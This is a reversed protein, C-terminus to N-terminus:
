LFGYRRPIWGLDLERGSIKCFCFLYERFKCPHTLWSSIHNLQHGLISIEFFHIFKGPNALFAEFFRIKGLLLSPRLGSLFIVRTVKTRYKDKGSFDGDTNFKLTHFIELELKEFTWVATSRWVPCNRGIRGGYVPGSDPGDEVALRTQTYKELFRWTRENM